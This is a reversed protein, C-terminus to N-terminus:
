FKVFKSAEIIKPINQELEDLRKITTASDVAKDFLALLVFFEARRKHNKYIENLVASLSVIATIILIFKM